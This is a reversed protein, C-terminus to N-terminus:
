IVAQNRSWAERKKMKSHPLKSGGQNPSAQKACFPAVLSACELLSTALIQFVVTETHRQARQTEATSEETPQPRIAAKHRPPPKQKAYEVSIL